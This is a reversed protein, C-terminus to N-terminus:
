LGVSVVEIVFSSPIPLRIGVVVPIMYISAFPLRPLGLAVTARSPPRIPFLRM